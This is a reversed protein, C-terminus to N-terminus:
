VGVDKPDPCLDVNRPQVNGTLGVRREPSASLFRELDVEGACRGQIGAVPTATWGSPLIM